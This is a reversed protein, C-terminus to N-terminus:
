PRPVSTLCDVAALYCMGAIRKVHADLDAGDLSLRVPVVVALLAYLDRAYLRPEFLAPINANAQSEMAALEILSLSDERVEVTRGKETTFTLAWMTAALADNASDITDTM